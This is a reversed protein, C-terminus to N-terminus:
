RKGFSQQNAQVQRKTLEWSIQSLATMMSLLEKRGITDGKNKEAAPSVLYSNRRRKSTVNKLFKLKKERVLALNGIQNSDSLIIVRLKVKKSHSKM